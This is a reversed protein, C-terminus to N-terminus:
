KETPAPPAWRKDAPFIDDFGGKLASGYVPNPLVFWGAGWKAVVPEALTADRRPMPALGANFLDSFDGLQDGGMALVCYKAAITARRGDKKSGMADEGALYLTEGHVAPGLGAGDIAATTEAANAASRNTNFIVTVGLKRLATLAQLAGPTPAVKDAGTKEWAQWTAESYPGPHAADWYEFGLNLLVTEDVDFVAAFPKKGCPVFGPAALTTGAALVVSDRPRKRVQQAVYGTLGRWAQVSIASGEGSGYLYQM